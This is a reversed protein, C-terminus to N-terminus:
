EDTKEEKQNCAPCYGAYYIQIQDVKFGELLPTYFDKNDIGEIDMVQGCGKCFFHSHTSRDADYRTKEDEITIKQVIQEEVLLHLSNYISAKSLTPIHEKLDMYIDDVSPHKNTGLLYSLVELRISTPKVNEERLINEAQKITNM